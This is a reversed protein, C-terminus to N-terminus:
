EMEMEKMMSTVSGLNTSFQLHEKQKLIKNRIDESKNETQSIILNEESILKQISNGIMQLKDILEQLKQLQKVYISRVEKRLGSHYEAKSCQTYLVEHM